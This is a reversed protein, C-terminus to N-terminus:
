FDVGIPEVVMLAGLLSLAISKALASPQLFLSREPGNLNVALTLTLVMVCNLVFNIQTSTVPERVTTSFPDSESDVIVPGPALPIYNFPVTSNVTYNGTFATTGPPGTLTDHNSKISFISFNTITRASDTVVGLHGGSEDVSIILSDSLVVNFLYSLAMQIAAGGILLVLGLTSLLTSLDRLQQSTVTSYCSSHLNFKSTESKILNITTSSSASSRSEESESMSQSQSENLKKVSNSFDLNKRRDTLYFTAILGRNCTSYLLYVALEPGTLNTSTEGSSVSYWEQMSVMSVGGVITAIAYNVVDANLVPPPPPPTKQDSTEPDDSIVLGSEWICNSLKKVPVSHDAKININSPFNRSSQARETSEIYNSNGPHQTLQTHSYRSIAISFKGSSDEPGPGQGLLQNGSKTTANTSMNNCNNANIGCNISSQPSVTTTVGSFKKWNAVRLRQLTLKTEVYDKVSGIENRVKTGPILTIVKWVAFLFAGFAVAIPLDSFM